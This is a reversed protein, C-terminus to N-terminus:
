QGNGHVVELRERGEKESMILAVFISGVLVGSPLFVADEESFQSSTFRLDKNTCNVVSNFILHRNQDGGWDGQQCFAAIFDEELIHGGVGQMTGEVYWHVARASM